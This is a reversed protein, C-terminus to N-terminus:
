PMSNSQKSSIWLGLSCSYNGNHEPENNCGNRPVARWSHSCWSSTNVRSKNKWEIVCLWDLWILGMGKTASEQQSGPTEHSGQPYPKRTSSFGTSPKLKSISNKLVKNLINRMSKLLWLAHKWLLLYLLTIARSGQWLDKLHHNKFHPFCLSKFLKATECYVQLNWLILWFIEWLTESLQLHPHRQSLECALIKKAAKNIHRDNRKAVLPVICDSVPCSKGINQSNAAMFRLLLVPCSLLLEKGAPFGPHYNYILASTAGRLVELHLRRWHQM